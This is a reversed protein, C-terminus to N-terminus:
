AAPLPKEEVALCAEGDQKLLKEFDEELVWACGSSGWGRGWSNRIRFAGTRTDVGDLLYAHGGLEDGSVRLMFRHSRKDYDFSDMMGSYWKTGVVVPGYHLLMKEIDSIGDAWYYEKVAGLAKLVKVGGRVTAGEVNEGISEALRAFRYIGSPSLYQVVPKCYLWASWAYGVCEPTDGQDLVFVGGQDSPSRWIFVTRVGRLKVSLRYTNNRFSWDRDDKAAIRGFKRTLVAM